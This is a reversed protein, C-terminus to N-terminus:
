VVILVITSGKPATGGGPNQSRVTGFFGGLVASRKVSFGAEELIRKAESFQRGVVNPVPIQVPGKSLTLTVAQGPLLTGNAPKQSLVSGAPVTDDNQRDTYRATLNLAALAAEADARSRGTVDPVDVPQPGKSVTLRVPSGNPVHRGAVPDSGLVRGAPAQADYVQQVDGVTLFADALATRAAADSRGTLPPVTVTAPGRSVLLRVTGDKRVDQGPAPDTTVVLGGAAHEDFVLTQSSRLRDGTLQAQADAVTRGRVDPTSTYAGPGSVFYWTTVALVTALGLVALLAILGTRRRRQLMAALEADEPDGLVGAAPVTTVLPVAGAHRQPSRDLEPLARTPQPAGPPPAGLVETASGPARTGAPGPAAPRADLQAPTLATHATRVAALLEDADAPRADAERATAAAVVDDLVPPVGAAISSPAPVQDNVHQYAVQIPVEGQFPQSGTLMEFLMIGAAYVDSRTDAVGRLVLEPSLYAVTGMLVGVTATSATAARALGFDAVKVRGEDTLIVNEPKIDRHVIGIRHAVALADLVPELVTLAERPTLVRREALVDRLTRGRLYEMALYLVDGDAGQDYVQVVNPHSLRATSRAERIFRETFQPDDALHAHMVKLAVERDLRRDLALYVTAMGGRAIRSRVLYRGDLERGVLPDQLTTDVRPTYPRAGAPDRSAAPTM